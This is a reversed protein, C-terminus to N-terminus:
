KIAGLAVANFYQFWPYAQCSDLQRACAIRTDMTNFDLYVDEEVHQRASFIQDKVQSM